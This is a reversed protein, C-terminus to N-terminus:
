HRLFEATAPDFKYYVSDGGANSFTLAVYSVGPLSVKLIKYGQTSCNSLLASTDAAADLVLKANSGSMGVLYGITLTGTTNIRISCQAAFIGGSNGVYFVLTTDRQQTALGVWSSLSAGNRLRKLPANTPPLLVNLGVQAMVPLSLVLALAPALVFKKM